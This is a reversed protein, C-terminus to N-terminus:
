LLKYKVIDDYKLYIQVKTKGDKEYYYLYPIESNYTNCTRYGFFVSDNLTILYKNGIYEKCNELDNLLEEITKEKNSKEKKRETNKIDESKIIHAKRDSDSSSCCSLLTLFIISTLVVILKRKM